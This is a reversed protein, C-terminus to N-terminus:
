WLHYISARVSVKAARGQKQIADWCSQSPLANFFLLYNHTCCNLNLVSGAIVAISHKTANTREIPTWRHFHIAHVNAV